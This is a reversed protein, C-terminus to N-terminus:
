LYAVLVLKKNLFNFVKSLKKCHFKRQLIEFINAMLPSKPGDSQVLNTKRM